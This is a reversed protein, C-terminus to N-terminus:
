SSPAVFVRGLYRGREVERSRQRTTELLPLAVEERLWLIDYAPEASGFELAYRGPRVIM